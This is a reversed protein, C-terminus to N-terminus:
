TKGGADVRIAGSIDESLKTLVQSHAATLAACSGDAVTEDATTQGSRTAGSAASHVTWVAELGRVSENFILQYTQPNRGRPELAEARSQYSTFVTNPQAPSLLQATSPTDFAIGGILISLLSQTQFRLGSASLQM